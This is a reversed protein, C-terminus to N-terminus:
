LILFMEKGYHIRYLTIVFQEFVVFQLVLLLFCPLSRPLCPFVPLESSCRWTTTTSTSRIAKLSRVLQHSSRKFLGGIYCDQHM